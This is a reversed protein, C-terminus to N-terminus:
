GSACHLVGAMIRATSNQKIGAKLAIVDVTRFGFGDIKLLAYPNEAVTERSFRGFEKIIQGAQYDTLGIGMLYTLTEYNDILTSAIIIATEADRYNTIGLMSPCNQAIWWSYEPGYEEIAAKAKVPGVGPLRTLLKAVGSATDTRPAAITISSCKLSRGFKNTEFKGVCVCETGQDAIEPLVGTCSIEAGSGDNCAVLFVCWGTDNRYKVQSIMGSIEKEKEGM